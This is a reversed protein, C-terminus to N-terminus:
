DFVAAERGALGDMVRKHYRESLPPLADPPFFRAELVEVGDPRLEGGIIECDFLAAM